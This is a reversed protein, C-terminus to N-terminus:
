FAISPLSAIGMVNTQLFPYVAALVGQETNNVAWFATVNVASNGSIVPSLVRCDPTAAGTYLM